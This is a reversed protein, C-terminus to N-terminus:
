YSLFTFIGGDRVRHLVALLLKAFVLSVHTEQLVAAGQPLVQLCETLSSSPSHPEHITVLPTVGDGHFALAHCLTCVQCRHAVHSKLCVLQLLDNFGYGTNIDLLLVLRYALGPCALLLHVTLKHGGSQLCVPLHVIHRHDNVGAYLFHEDTSKGSCALAILITVSFLIRPCVETMRVIHYEVRRHFIRSVLIHFEDSLNVVDGEASEALLEGLAALIHLLKCFPVSELRTREPEFLDSFVDVVLMLSVLHGEPSRLVLAEAAHILDPSLLRTVAVAHM